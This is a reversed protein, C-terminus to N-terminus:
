LLCACKACSYYASKKFLFLTRFVVYCIVQLDTEEKLVNYIGLQVTVAKMGRVLTERLVKRSWSVSRFGNANASGASSSAYRLAVMSPVISRMLGDDM